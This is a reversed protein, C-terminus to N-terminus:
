SAGFHLVATKTAANWEVTGGLREAIFRFPLMTRSNLIVPVVKPDADIPVPKGNVYAIPDGIALVLEIEGLTITVSRAAANWVAEGGLAQIIAAVPVLTRGNQIVPTTGRGPDIERKTGNVTMDKNGITLVITTENAPVRTVLVAVRRTNGAADQATVTITNSGV